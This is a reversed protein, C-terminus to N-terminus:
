PGDSDRFKVIGLWARDVCVGGSTTLGPLTAGGGVELAVVTSLSVGGTATLGPLTAAGGVTLPAIDSLSVGGTATLGPM